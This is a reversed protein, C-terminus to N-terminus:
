LNTTNIAMPEISHEEIPEDSIPLMANACEPRRFISFDTVQYNQHPEGDVAGSTMMDDSSFICSPEFEMRKSNKLVEEITSIISDDKLLANANPVNVFICDLLKGNIEKSEQEIKFDGGINLFVPLLFVSPDQAILARSFDIFHGRGMVTIIKEVSTFYYLCHAMFESRILDTIADADMSPNKKTQKTLYNKVTPDAYFKEELEEDLPQDMCIVGIKKELASRCLMKLSKSYKKDIDGSYIGNQLAYTRELPFELGVLDPKFVENIRSAFENAASASDNHFEYVTVITRGQTRHPTHAKLSGYKGRVSQICRIIADSPVKLDETKIESKISASPAAFSHM